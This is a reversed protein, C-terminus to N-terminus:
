DGGNINTIYNYYMLNFGKSSTWEIGPKYITSTSVHGGMSYGTFGIPGLGIKKCWSHLIMGEMILCGGM